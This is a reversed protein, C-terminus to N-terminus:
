FRRVAANTDEYFEFLNDFGALEFSSYILDPVEVFVIKGLEDKLLQRQMVVFMLIGSSSLYIVDSLNMVFNHHGRNILSQITKKIKPSTYSDIRGSIEITNCNQLETITLEM